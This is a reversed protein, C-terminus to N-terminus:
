RRDELAFFAPVRSTQQHPLPGLLVVEVLVTM